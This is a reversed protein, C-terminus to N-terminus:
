GGYISQIYYFIPHVFCKLKKHSRKLSTASRLLDLFCFGDYANVDTLGCRMRRKSIVKDKLTRFTMKKHLCLLFTM